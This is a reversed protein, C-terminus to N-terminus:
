YWDLIGSKETSKRLSAKQWLGLPVMVNIGKGRIQNKKM